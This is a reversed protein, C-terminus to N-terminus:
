NSLSKGATKAPLIISSNVPFATRQDVIWFKRECPFIGSSQKMRDPLRM